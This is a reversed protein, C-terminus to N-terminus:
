HTGFATAFEMLSTSTGDWSTLFTALDKGDVDGDNDFDYQSSDSNFVLEAERWEGEPLTINGSTMQVTITQNVEGGRSRTPTFTWSEGPGPQRLGALVITPGADDIGQEINSPGTTNTIYTRSVILRQSQELPLDDDSVLIVTAFGSTEQINLTDLKAPPQGDLYGSFAEVQPADIVLQKRVIDKQIEGTDSEIPNSPESNMFPQSNQDYGAPAPGYQKRIASVNQWGPKPLLKPTVPYGFSAQWVPDEVYLTIPNISTRVLGKKFILGTTRLHDLFIADEIMNGTVSERDEQSNLMDDPVRENVGWGDPGVAWDGHNWAFWFVGAWNQLAGYSSAALPMMTRKNKRHHLLDAFNGDAGAAINIEGIIVPKDILQSQVALNYVFDEKPNPPNKFYAYDEDPHDLVSEVVAPNTYIHDETHTIENNLAARKADTESRWLTSFTVNINGGISNIHNKIENFYDSDLKALFAIKTEERQDLDGSQGNADELTYLDFYDMGQSALYTTWKSILKDQFYELGPFGSHYQPDYFKNGNVITYISSFENTIELSLVQDSNKYAKGTYPNVHNLLTTLFEKELARAREDIMPLMKQLDITDWWCNTRHQLDAIAKRWALRDQDNTTIIDVDNTGYDRLWHTSILIYIGRKALEANLFDFRRWAEQDPIRSTFDPSMHDVNEPNDPCVRVRPDDDPLWELGEYTALAKINSNHIWDDSPRMMHHWRVCNIGRSALNEAFNVATQDDPYFAVVNVGWCRFKKGNSDVFDQGNIYLPRITSDGGGSTDNDDGGSSGSYAMYQFDTYNWQSGWVTWLRVHIASGDTPLNDVTAQLNTGQSQSYIEDGGQSHGVDLYYQDAGVDNWVFTVTSGPLTSGPTPSTIVADQQTQRSRLRGQSDLYSPLLSAAPKHSYDNRLLGFYDDGEDVLRYIIAVPIKMQDDNAQWNALIDLARRLHEEQEPESGADGWTSSSGTGFETIWIAKNNDGRSDMLSRINEIGQQFCWPPALPDSENCQDPYQAKSYHTGEEEDVRSYPHLALADFKSTGGWREYLADLYDTDASALSGGLITVEPHSSKMVNFTQALMDAYQTAAELRVLVYTGERETYTPWFGTSNPENWVELAMITSPQIDFQDYPSIVEEYLEKLANAYAGYFAPQPPYHPENNGNAWAPSQAFMLVVKQGRNQAQLVRTKVEQVYDQDFSGQIPELANWDTPIRVVKIGLTNALELREVYQNVSDTEAIHVGILCQSAWANRANMIYLALLPILFLCSLLTLGSTRNRHNQFSFLFM